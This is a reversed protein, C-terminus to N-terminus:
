RQSERILGGTNPDLLRYRPDYRRVNGRLSNRNIPEYCYCVYAPLATNKRLACQYPYNFARTWCALPVAREPRRPITPASPEIPLAAAPLVSALVLAITSFTRLM